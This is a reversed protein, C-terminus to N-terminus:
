CTSKKQNANKKNLANQLEKKFDISGIAEYSQAPVLTFVGERHVVDTIIRCEHQLLIDSDLQEVLKGDVFKMVVLGDQSSGDDMKTKKRLDYILATTYAGYLQECLTIRDVCDQLGKVRDLVVRNVRSFKIQAVTCGYREQGYHTISDRNKFYIQVKFRSYKRNFAFEENRKRQSM